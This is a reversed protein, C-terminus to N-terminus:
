QLGLAETNVFRFYFGGFNVFFAFLVMKLFFIAKVYM